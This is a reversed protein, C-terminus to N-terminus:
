FIEVENKSLGDKFVTNELNQIYEIKRKNLIVSRINNRVMELPSVQGEPIRDNIHILYNYVSDSVDINTTYSLFRGPNNVKVPLEEILDIFKIWENGNIIYKEAYRQCYKELQDLDEINNSRYWRRLQDLQPATIAIKIYNVKVVDSDLIYNSSYQQYYNEIEESTVVTDLNQKLLDQKYKFTLLTLRYEEIQKEINKEDISLYQEARKLLLRERAWEEILRRAIRISDEDSIGAPINEALDSPYLYLDYVRAVPKEAPKQKLQACSYLFLIILIIFSTIKNRDM